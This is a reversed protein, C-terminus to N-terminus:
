QCKKCYWGLYVPIGSLTFLSAILLTNIATQCLIWSCFGISMITCIYTFGTGNHPEQWLLKALGLSCILYVFVFAIVSIDIISIIQAAINDNATLILLPAIGISSILIAWIPAGYINTVGLWAPMFKDQALGLAIQGSTLIWANLSAICIIAAILSIVLHWNGAFLLQAADTYPATSQMLAEAPVLGTIGIYNLVYFLATCITGWIIAKPITVSPNDVADAPATASELGIFGWLTLLTVHGLLQPTTNGTRSAHLVFHLPDFYWLAALPILTLPIFKVITLILEVTGTITAGRMNLLTILTLLVLELMLLSIKDHWPLLHHLYGICAIVVVTTSVWSIIWYTWGTFFAATSGFLHNIYVHPGGTQPFRACLSAFVFCLALAGCSSIIWGVLGYIGYPALAAPLMFIGSGIQAGSVLAFVSWFGMKESM